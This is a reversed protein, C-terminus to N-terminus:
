RERMSTSATFNIYVGVGPGFPIEKRYAFGIVVEGGEKTIDLDNATVASIDDIAARANFSRKVDAVTPNGETAIAYIAKRATEYEILAPVLKMAFIVLIVVVFSGLLLATLSLGFQRNRMQGGQVCM